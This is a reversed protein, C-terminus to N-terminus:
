KRLYLFALLLVSNLNVRLYRLAKTLHNEVTKESIGMLQAIEKNTKYQKRSLEFVNRCKPPLQNVETEVRELLEKYYYNEETSNDFSNNVMLLIEAYSNRVAEARKYNLVLYKISTFLYGQLSTQIKVQERNIWFSTFFDQVIEQATEREKVRKYAASYLKLWYRNYIEEFADIDGLGFLETLQIDTHDSLRKM